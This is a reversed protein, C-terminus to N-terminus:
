VKRLYIRDSPGEVWIISNAQVIDSARYGLDSCIRYRESPTSAPRVTTQGDVLSVHFTAAGPTDILVASHTAIFYQNTTKAALYQMLKRQLTPHLHIEPEEICVIQNKALTCFAALMIIEHIGTGLSSLPLLRDNMHVLIHERDHPIELTASPDGTVSRLFNNIQDFDVQKHRELHGPNQIEALKDILGKGSTDEYQEGKAGIQRIAPIYVSRPLSLCESQLVQAISEPLWNQDFTGGTYSPRFIQWIARTANIIEPATYKQNNTIKGAAVFRRPHAGYQIWVFSGDALNDTFLRINEPSALYENSNKKAEQRIVEHIKKKPLYLDFLVSEQSHGLHPDNQKLMKKPTRGISSGLAQHSFCDLQEAIFALFASKGSNNPGVFLNITTFEQAEQRIPGIGRYNTLALGHLFINM